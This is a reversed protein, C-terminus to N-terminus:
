LNNNKLFQGLLAAKIENENMGETINSTSISPSEPESLPLGFPVGYLRSKYEIIRHGLFNNNRIIPPWEAQTDVILKRQRFENIRSSYVDAEPSLQYGFRDFFDSPLKGIEAWHRQAFRQKYIGCQGKFFTDSDQRNMRSAIDVPSGPVHLKLQISWILQERLADSGGGKAGIMEEFSLPIVNGFDLWPVFEIVRDRISGLLYPDDILKTLRQDFDQGAFYNYFATKGKKHYYNAESVVIDAPHRYMFLTPTFAFPHNRLAFIGQYVSENFFHTARTHAHDHEVYYWEGGKPKNPSTRRAIYGLASALEFLLHTGGKPIGILFLPTNKYYKATVPAIIQINEADICSHLTHSVSEPDTELVIILRMTHRAPAARPKLMAGIENELTNKLHGNGVFEIEIQGDMEELCYHIRDLYAQKDQKEIFSLRRM